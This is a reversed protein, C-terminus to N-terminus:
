DERGFLKSLFSGAGDDYLETDTSGIRFRDNKSQFSQETSSGYELEIDTREIRMKGGNTASITVEFAPVLHSRLPASLALDVSSKALEGTMASMVADGFYHQTIRPVHNFSLRNSEALTLAHASAACLLTALAAAALRMQVRFLVTLVTGAIPLIVRIAHQM